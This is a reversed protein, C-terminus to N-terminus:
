YEYYLLLGQGDRIFLRDGDDNWVKGSSEFTKEKGGEVRIDFFHNGDDKAEAECVFNCKNRLIFYEEAPALKVLEFCDACKSTSKEWLGRGQERAQEEAKKLDAEYKLGECMYLTALGEELIEKNIFRSGYFVFRLKRNYQDIDDKDRLIQMEEGEFEALKNKAEAYFPKNKEPTNICLLRVDSSETEFTDGDIVRVMNVAEAGYVGKGTLRPYYYALNVILIIVAIFALIRKIKM